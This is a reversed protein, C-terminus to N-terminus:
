SSVLAESAELLAFARAFGYITFGAVILGGIAWMLVGGLQQDELPTMGWVWSTTRHVEYWPVGSFTLLAGLLSMQLGTFLSGSVLQLAKIKEEGILAYWLGIASVIISLQMAWYIVNNQLTSNYPNGFHWFWYIVAFLYPWMPTLKGIRRATYVGLLSPAHRALLAPAGSLAILPAAILIITLHQVARASFLAVSLNCLPSLLALSLILWGSVFYATRLRSAGGVRFARATVLLVLLLASGLVPDTNWAVHGPAPPAGCYPVFSSM